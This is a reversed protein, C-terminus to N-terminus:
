FIDSALILHLWRPSIRSIGLPPCSRWISHFWGDSFAPYVIFRVGRLLKLIPLYPFNKEPRWACHLSPRLTASIHVFSLSGLLLSCNMPNMQFKLYTKSVSSLVGSLRREVNWWRRSVINKCRISKPENFRVVM